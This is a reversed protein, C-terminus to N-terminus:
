KIFGSGVFFFSGTFDAAGTNIRAKAGAACNSAMIVIADLSRGFFIGSELPRENIHSAQKTLATQQKTEEDMNNRRLVAKATKPPRRNKYKFAKM